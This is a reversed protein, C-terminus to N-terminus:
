ITKTQDQLFLELETIPLPKSFVFGQIYECGCNKIFELQEKDEVGEVIISKGLSHIGQVLNQFFPRCEKNEVAVDVLSKDIKLYNIPLKLFVSMNSYEVGFDDLEFTFGKKKMQSIVNKVTSDDSILSRETIEIKIQSPSISYRNLIEMVNTYMDTQFFIKFPFNISISKLGTEARTDLIERFDKCVKELVLYTIKIILGSKEAIPIFEGPYLSYKEGNKLRVLAEAQSFLESNFSYIPQYHIIFGDNKIATKLYEIIKTVRQMETCIAIDYLYNDEFSKEKLQSIAYDATSVLTKVNTSFAPYDVRTYVLSLKIEKNQIILSEKCYNIIKNVRMEFDDDVVTSVLAFEDGSYRFVIEKKFRKSFLQGITILIADGLVLGYRENIGKFNQLSFLYLSFTTNSRAMKEIYYMLSQRNYLGTLKDSVAKSNQVYIFVIMVGTTSALGALLIHPMFFQILSIAAAVTVNICIIITINKNVTKRSKISIIYVWVIYIAAVVYTSQFLPGRCYGVETSFYFVSPYLYNSLILLVYMLYPILCKIWTKYTIKSNASIETLAITYLFTFLSVSPTLIYYLVKIVTLIWIPFLTFYQSTITSIITTIISIFCSVYMLNFMKQRLSPTEKNWALSVVLISIMLLSIYEATLDYLLM